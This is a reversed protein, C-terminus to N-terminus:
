KKSLVYKFNSKPNLFIIEEISVELVDSIQIATKLRIDEPNNEWINYTSPSVNLLYAMQLQSINKHTRWEKLTRNLIIVEKKSSYDSYRIKIVIELM